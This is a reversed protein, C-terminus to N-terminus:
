SIEKLMLSCKLSEMLKNLRFLLLKLEDIEEFKEYSSIILEQISILKPLYDKVYKDLINLECKIIRECLKFRRLYQIQDLVKNTIRVLIMDLDKIIILVHKFRSGLIFKKLDIFVEDLIEIDSEFDEMKENCLLNILDPIEVSNNTM